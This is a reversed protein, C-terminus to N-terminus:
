APAGILTGDEVVTIVVEVIKGVDGRRYGPDLKPEDREERSRRLSSTERSPSLRVPAFNESHGIGNEREVLVRQRTGLLARLWGDRRAAGAERLRRAREKIEAAPVQPMRAAPTGHKPSYPFIHGMVIDCDEILRRSNEAM